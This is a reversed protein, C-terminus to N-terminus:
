DTEGTLRGCEQKEDGGFHFDNEVCCRITSLINDANAMGLRKLCCLLKLEKEKIESDKTRDIYFQTVFKGGRGIVQVSYNSWLIRIFRRDGKNVFFSILPILLWTSYVFILIVLWYWRQIPPILLMLLGATLILCGKAAQAIKTEADNFVFLIADIPLALGCEPCAFDARSRDSYAIQYACHPCQSVDSIPVFRLAKSRRMKREPLGSSTQM